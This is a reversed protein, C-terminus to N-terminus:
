PLTSSRDQLHVACARRFPTQKNISGDAVTDCVVYQRTGTCLMLKSGGGVGVFM